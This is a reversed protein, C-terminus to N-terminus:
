RFQRISIKGLENKIIFFYINLVSKPSSNFVLSSTALSYLYRCDKSKLIWTHNKFSTGM